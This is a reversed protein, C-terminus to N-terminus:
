ADIAAMIQLLAQPQIQGTALEFVRWGDAQAANMKERDNAFGRGRTHRGGSYIGGHLEIAVKSALHAYDFRWKRDHNFRHEKVLAPGGLSRWLDDFRRTMADRSTGVIPPKIPAVNGAVIRLDPNRKLADALEKETM